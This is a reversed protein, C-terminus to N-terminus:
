AICHFFTTCGSLGCIAIRYLISFFLNTQQTLLAVPVFGYYTISIAKGRCFNTRSLAEINRQVYMYSTGYM